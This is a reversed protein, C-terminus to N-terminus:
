KGLRDIHESWWNHFQAPPEPNLAPHPFSSWNNILYLGHGQAAWNLPFAQALTCASWIPSLGTSSCVNGLAELFWLLSALPWRFIGPGLGQYRNDQLSCPDKCVHNPDQCASITRCYGPPGPCDSWLGGWLLFVSIHCVCVSPFTRHLCLCLRCHHLWLGFFALLWWFSPFTLSPIRGYGGFTVCGWPCRSKSGSRWLQSFILKQQKLGGPKHCYPTWCAYSVLTHHVPFSKWSIFCCMLQTYLPHPSPLHSTLLKIIAWTYFAFPYSIFSAM